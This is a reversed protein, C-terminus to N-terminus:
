YQNVSSYIDINFIIIRGHVSDLPTCKVLLKPMAKPLRPQGMLKGPENPFENAVLVPQVKAEGDWQPRQQWEEHGGTPVESSYGNAGRMFRSYAAM